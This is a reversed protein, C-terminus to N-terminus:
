CWIGIHKASSASVFALHRVIEDTSAGKAPQNQAHFYHRAHQVWLMHLLFRGWPGHELQVYRGVLLASWLVDSLVEFPVLLRPRGIEQLDSPDPQAKDAAPDFLAHRSKFLRPHM